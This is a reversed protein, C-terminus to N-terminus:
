QRCTDDGQNAEDAQRSQTQCHDRQYRNQRDQKVNTQDKASPCALCGRSFARRTTRAIMGFMAANAWRLYVIGENGGSGRRNLDPEFLKHARANGLL